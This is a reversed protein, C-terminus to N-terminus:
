VLDLTRLIAGYLEDRPQFVAPPDQADWSDFASFLALKAVAYEEVDRLTRGASRELATRDIEVYLPRATKRDTSYDFRYRSGDQGRFVYEFVYGCDASYTKWRM